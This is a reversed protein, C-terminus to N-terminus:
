PACVWPLPEVDYGRRNRRLYARGPDQMVKLKNRVLWRQRGSLEGANADAAKNGIYEALRYAAAKPFVMQTKGSPRMVGVTVGYGYYGPRNIVEQLPPRMVGVLVGPEETHTWGLVDAPVTWGLGHFASRVRQLWRLLKDREAANGFAYGGSDLFLQWEDGPPHVYQGSWRFTGATTEFEAEPADRLAVYPRALRVPDGVPEGELTFTIEVELHDCGQDGGYFNLTELPFQHSFGYAPDFPFITKEPPVGDIQVPVNNAFIAVRYGDARPLGESDASLQFVTFGLEPIDGARTRRVLTELSAASWVGQATSAHASPFSLWDWLASIGAGNCGALWGDPDASVLSCSGTMPCNLTGELLGESSPDLRETARVCMSTAQLGDTRERTSSKPVPFLSSRFSRGPGDFYVTDTYDNTNAHKSRVGSTGDDWVRRLRDPWFEPLGPQPAVTYHITTKKGLGGEIAIFQTNLKSAIAASADALALALETDMYGRIKAVSNTAARRQGTRMKKMLPEGFANLNMELVLTARGDRADVLDGVNILLEHQPGPERVLNWKGAQPLLLETLKDVAAATLKDRNAASVLKFLAADWEFQVDVRLEPAGPTAGSVPGVAITMWLVVGIAKALCARCPIMSM